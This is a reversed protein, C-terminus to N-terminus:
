TNTEAKNPNNGAKLERKLGDNEGAYAFDREIKALEGSVRHYMKTLRFNKESFQIIEDITKFKHGRTWLLADSFLRMQILRAFDEEHEVPLIDWAETCGGIFQILLINSGNFRPIIDLIDKLLIGKTQTM